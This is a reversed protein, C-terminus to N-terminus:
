YCDIDCETLGQQAALLTAMLFPCRGGAAAAPLALCLTFWRGFSVLNLQSFAGL